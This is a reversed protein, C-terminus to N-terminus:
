STLIGKSDFDTLRAALLVLGISLIFLTSPASVGSTQSPNLLIAERHGDPNIASGALQGLNNMATLGFDSWGAASTDLLEDILLMEANYGWLVSHPGSDFLFVSGLILGNINIDLGSGERVNADDVTLGVMGNVSDWLFAEHTGKATKSAGVVQGNDNIAHAISEFDGGPLDGLGVMGNTSDWIFAQSYDTFPSGTGNHSEGVVQGSNNIDLARSDTAGGPLDGLGQIGGSSSWTMAERIQTGGPSETTGYGTITGTSNIATARSGFNGKPFDGVGQMGTTAQWVFAEPCIGGGCDLTRYAHGTVVGADNIDYARSATPGGPLGGLGVMGNTSDWIFAEGHSDGVVQGMNNLGLATSEYIGGPLDGLPTLSFVLAYSSASYILSLLFLIKSTTVLRHM